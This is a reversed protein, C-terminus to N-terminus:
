FRIAALDLPLRGYLELEFSRTPYLISRQNLYALNRTLGREGTEPNRTLLDFYESSFTLNALARAQRVPDRGRESLRMTTVGLNNYVKMIYELLARHESNDAPSLFPIRDRRVEQLDLLRLYYGQASSYYGQLYMANALAFLTNESTPQSDVVRTFRLLAQEYDEQAYRIYGMQYDLEDSRYLNEEAKRYLGLATGLDRSVYYYLDGRNKYPLGLDKGQGLVRQRQGAEIREIALQYYKEANLYERERWYTEGLRNYSDILALLRKRTFPSSDELLDVANVLAKREEVPDKLYRYYRALQYHSEPHFKDRKLAALLAERVGDYVKQDFWFGALEAYVGAFLEPKVQLRRKKDKAELLTYLDRTERLRPPQVRIFYRMMRLLVEDREGYYDLISAYQLRASEYHEPKEEAWELYNDGRALLIDADRFGARPVHRGRLGKVPYEGTYEGLIQDAREYGFISYTLLHAYGLTGQRDLPFHRLLLEYKDAALPYQRKNMYADAYRLYWGKYRIIANAKAFREEALKYREKLIQAHGQRYLAYAALPRYIYRYGLFSLLGLFLLSLVAARVIPWINERLGFAFTRREEEFALGTLKEYGRPLRIRRGTIRSAEEALQAPAAGDALLDTLLRLDPGTLGKEAILEEIAMKLNRPLVALTRQLAAFRRETISFEEEGVEPAAARAAPPAGVAGRGEAAEAPRVARRPKPVPAEAPVEAAPEEGFLGEGAFEEPLGSLGEAGAEGPGEAPMEPFAFSVEEEPPAEAAPAEAPVEAPVEAPAAESPLMFEEPLQFPEEGFGPEEGLGAAPAEAPVEAAAEEGPAEAGRAEEGPFGLGALFDAPLEGAEGEGAAPPTFGASPPAPPEAFFDEPIAEEGLGAEPAVPAEQPGAAEAAEEEMGEEHIGFDAPLTFEALEEEAVPGAAEGEPEPAEQPGATAAAEEEMGEEHIGFDAPLTFEALEEEAVPGAAPEEAQEGAPEGARSPKGLTDLLGPPIGFEELTEAPEASAPEPPATGPEEGATLGLGAFVKDLDESGQPAEGEPSTEGEPPAAPPMELSDLGEVGEEGFLSSFDFDEEGPEAAAEKAERPGRVAPAGEQTELGPQSEGTAGTFLDSLDPPGAEPPPLDEISEGREALLEPESGLSNLIAKFREIEQLSPM